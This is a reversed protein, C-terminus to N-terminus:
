AVKRARRKKTKANVIAGIEAYLRALDDGSVICAKHVALVGDEVSWKPLNAKAALAAAAAQIQEDATRIRGANTDIASNIESANMMHMPKMIVSGRSLVPIDKPPEGVEGLADVQTEYPLSGIKKVMFDSAMVFLKPSMERRAIKVLMDWDRRSMQKFSAAFADAAEDGYADVADCYVCAAKVLMEISKGYYKQFKSLLADLTEVSKKIEKKAKM